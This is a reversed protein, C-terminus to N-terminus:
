KQLVRAGGVNLASVGELFARKDSLIFKSRALSLVDRGFLSSM